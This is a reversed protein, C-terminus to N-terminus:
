TDDDLPWFYVHGQWYGVSLQNIAVEWPAIEHKRIFAAIAELLRPLDDKFEPETFHVCVTDTIHRGDVIPTDWKAM